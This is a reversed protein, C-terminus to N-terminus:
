LASRGKLSLNRKKGAMWACDDPLDPSITSVIEFESIKKHASNESPPQQNQKPTELTWWYDDPILEVTGESIEFEIVKYLPCCHFKVSAGSPLKMAIDANIEKGIARKDFEIANHQSAFDLLASQTNKPTLSGGIVVEFHELGSAYFSGTKPSPIELCSINFENEQYIYVFPENLQVTCIPRKGIMSEILVIGFPKLDNCVQKYEEVTECRYCVQLLTNHFLTSYFLPFNIKNLSWTPKSDDDYRDLWRINQELM